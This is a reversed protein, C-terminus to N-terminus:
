HKLRALFEYWPFESGPCRTAGERAHRHTLINQTPIACRQQLYNVLAVLAEMQRATPEAEDFNGVVCIGVGERNYVNGRVGGAHAGTRQQEWRFTVEVLGDPSGRGNGIVFDYGVGDWGRVERHYRDFSAESGGDTGSHHIVIYNWDRELPTDLRGELRPPRDLSRVAVSVLPLPQFGPPYNPAALRAAADAIMCIPVYEDTAVSTGACGLCTTLLTVGALASLMRM